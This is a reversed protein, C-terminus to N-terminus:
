LAPQQLGSLGFSAQRSAGLATCLGYKCAPEVHLTFLEGLTVSLMAHTSDPERTHSVTAATLQEELTARYAKLREATNLTPTGSVAAAGAAASVPTVQASGTAAGAAANPELAEGREVTNVSPTDASSPTPTHMDRTSSRSARGSLKALLEQLCSMCCWSQDCYASRAFIFKGFSKFLHRGGCVAATDPGSRSSCLLAGAMAPLAHWVYTGESVTAKLLRQELSPRIFRWRGVGETDLDAGTQQGGQAVSQQQWPGQQQQRQQSLHLQHQLTAQEQQQQQL